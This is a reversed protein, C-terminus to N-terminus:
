FPQLQLQLQNNSIQANVAARFKLINLIFTDYLRINGHKQFIYKTTTKIGDFQNNFAHM